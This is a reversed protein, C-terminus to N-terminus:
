ARLLYAAVEARLQASSAEWSQIGLARKYLRHLVHEWTFGIGGHAQIARECAAVAAEAAESKAAAAAVAGNPEDNAVCWAAWWALSRALELEVFSTALPHSVAQFTGVVRGFQERTRVYGVALELARAGVGVAELALIALTRSRVAPLVESSCLARGPEGGSVVGLPRDGLLAMGHAVLGENVSAGLKALAKLRLAKQRERLGRKIALIDEGLDTSVTSM